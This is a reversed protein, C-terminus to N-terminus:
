HSSNSSQNGVLRMDAGDISGDPKRKWPDRQSRGLGLNGISKRQSAREPSGAEIDRGDAEWGAVCPGGNAGKFREGGGGV